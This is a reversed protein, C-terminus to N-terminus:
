FKFGGLEYFDILANKTQVELRSELDFIRTSMTAYGNNVFIELSSTDSFISLNSLSELKMKRFTRGDGCTGMDLTLIKSNSNYKLSCDKRFKILLDEEKKFDINMEFTLSNEFLKDKFDKHSKRLNKFEELPKQYIHKDKEILVRPMSLCQDWGNKSTPTLAYPSEPMGMWGILIRRGKDDFLTRAAYFDFGYDFEQFSKIKNNKRFDGEILFAGCQHANQFHFKKNDIGQPCAILFSKGNLEIFDPCEWMYGFKEDTQLINIEKFNKLDETKYVIVCGEDDLSRAGILMYYSNEYKFVQPDRVHQSLNKPFDENVMLLTKNEFNIGDESEIRMVNQERGSTIYDHNGEHRVNGTYYAYFKNNEYIMSGSYIGDRDRPSDPYIFIDQDEYNIFDKTIYQKWVCASRGQVEFKIPSYIYGIHYLGKVQCLGNPDGLIGTKPMLHYNLRYPDSSYSNKSNEARKILSKYEEIKM